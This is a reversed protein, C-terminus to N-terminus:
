NAPPQCFGGTCGTSPAPCDEPGTCAITCAFTHGFGHCICSECEDNNLCGTELYPKAGCVAGAELPVSDITSADVTPKDDDCAFLFLSALLPILRSTM